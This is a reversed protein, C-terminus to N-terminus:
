LQLFLSSNVSLILTIVYNKLRSRYYRVKDGGAPSLKEVPTEVWKKQTIKKIRYKENEGLRDLIKRIKYHSM